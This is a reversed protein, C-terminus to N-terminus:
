INFSCSLFCLGLSVVLEIESIPHGPEHLLARLRQGVSGQSM